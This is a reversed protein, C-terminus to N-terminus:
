IEIGERSANFSCLGPIQSHLQHKEETKWLLDLFISQKALIKKIKTTWELRTLRQVNSSLIILIDYDSDQNFDGRARSGFLIIKKINSTGVVEYITNKINLSSNM